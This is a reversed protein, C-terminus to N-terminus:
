PSQGPDGPGTTLVPRVRPCYLCTGQDTWVDTTGPTEAQTWWKAKWTRGGYFVVSGGVYAM